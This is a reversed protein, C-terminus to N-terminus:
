EHAPNEQQDIIELDPFNRKLHRILPKTTPWIPTYVVVKRATMEEAKAKGFDKVLRLKLKLPFPHGYMPRFFRGESHKPQGDDDKLSWEGKLWGDVYVMNIIRDGSVSRKICLEHGDAMLKISGYVGTLAQEIQQWKDQQDTM